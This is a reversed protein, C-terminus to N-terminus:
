ETPANKSKEAYDTTNKYLNYSEKQDATVSILDGNGHNNTSIFYNGSNGWGVYGNYDGWFFLSTPKNQQRDPHNKYGVAAKMDSQLNDVM